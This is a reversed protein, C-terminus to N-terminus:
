GSQYGRQLHIFDLYKYGMKQMLKFGLNDDQIPKELAKERNLVEKIKKPMNYGNKRQQEIDLERQRKYSLQANETKKELEELNMNMYDDDSEM